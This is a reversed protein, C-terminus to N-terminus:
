CQHTPTRSQCRRAPPPQSLCCNSRQYRHSQRRILGILPAGDLGVLQQVQTVKCELAVPSEMVRPAAVELSPVPTLETLAFEDVGIQETSSLNVREALPRTALNYVFEGTAEANRVSDKKGM